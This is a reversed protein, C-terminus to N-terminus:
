AKRSSVSLPLRARPHGLRRSSFDGDAPASFWELGVRYKELSNNCTYECGSGTRADELEQDLAGPVLVLNCCEEVPSFWLSRHTSLFVLGPLRPVQESNLLFPAAGLERVGSEVRRVWFM